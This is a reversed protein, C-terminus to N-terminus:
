NSIRSWECLQKRKACSINCLESLFPALYLLVVTCSDEQSPYLRGSRPASFRVAMQSGITYFIDSGRRRVVRHAKMAQWLSLKLKVKVYSSFTRVATTIFRVMKHSIVGHLGNFTLMRKLPVYPRLSWPRFFFCLFFVLTFEVRFISAIHEESIYTSVWRICWFLNM